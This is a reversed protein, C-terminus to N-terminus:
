YHMIYERYLVVEALEDDVGGDIVLIGSGVEETRGVLAEVVVDEWALRRAGVDIRVTLQCMYKVRRSIGSAERIDEPECTPHALDDTAYGFLEQWSKWRSLVLDRKPDSAVTKTCAQGSEEVTLITM